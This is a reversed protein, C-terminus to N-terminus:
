YRQSPDSRLNRYNLVDMLDPLSTVVIIVALYALVHYNAWEPGFQDPSIITIVVYVITLLFGM